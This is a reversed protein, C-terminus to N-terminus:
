LYDNKVFWRITDALTDEFPRPRYGLERRAKENSISKHASKLIKLSERTYLAKSGNIRAWANLFPLGLEAFRFPIVPLRGAGRKLVSIGAYLDPLSVYHGSLLYSEGTRGHEIARLTGQVVDRVDVWDYGGPVLAPIKGRYLQLIAQGALSPKFDCPGIVSTPNIIVADLGRATEDLVMRHSLAKSRVYPIPDNLALPSNEDLPRNLPPRLLAHVSSFHILRRVRSQKVAELLNKTGAVNTDLVANKKGRVSIVAALHIMVEAGDALQRLPSLELLNGHVTLLDLGALSATYRNALVTIEHKQELLTRCLNAGIHGSAGTIAIRM